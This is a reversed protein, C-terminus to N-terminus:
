DFLWPNNHKFMKKKMQEKGYRRLNFNYTFNSPLEDYSLNFRKTGPAKLMPKM